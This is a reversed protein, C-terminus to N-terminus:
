PALTRLPLLCSQCLRRGRRQAPPCSPQPPGPLWSDTLDVAVEKVPSRARTM